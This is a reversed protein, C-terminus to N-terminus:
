SAESCVAKWDMRTTTQNILLGLDQLRIIMAQKSVNSFGGAECMAAAIFPWQEVFPEESRSGEQVGGKVNNIIFPEPGCVKQFAERIGKEPMLLCAAFYDAQWEIPAKADRPRCVIAEDKSNDGGEADVYRRHLVWHGAEHACTFVLRGESSHEFLRENICIVKAVVYTAGLVDNSGFVKELDEYVLRLGLSREIIDEVPIPPKVMYGAMTQFAEMLDMAKLAIEEKSIWPVKM